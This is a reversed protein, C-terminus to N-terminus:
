FCVFVFPIMDYISKQLKNKKGLHKKFMKGYQYM